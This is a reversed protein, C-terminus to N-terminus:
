AAVKVLMDNIKGLQKRVPLIPSCRPYRARRWGACGGRRGFRASAHGGDRIAFFRRLWTLQRRGGPPRASFGCSVWQWVPGRGARMVGDAPAAIAPANALFWLFIGPAAALSRQGAVAAPNDGAPLRRRDGSGRFRHRSRRRSRVARRAPRRSFRPVAPVVARLPRNRGNWEDM